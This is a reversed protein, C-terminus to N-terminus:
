DPETVVVVQVGGVVDSLLNYLIAAVVNLITAALALVAGGLGCYKFAANGHLVFSRDDALSRVSKQIDTVFGVRQAVYWTVVGAVMVVILMLAYFCFSMKFVTWTDIRRVLRRDSRSRVVTVKRRRFRREKGIEYSVGPAVAEAVRRAMWDSTGRAAPEAPSGPDPSVSVRRQVPGAPEVPGTVGGAGVATAVPEGVAGNSGASGSAGVDGRGPSRRLGAPRLAVTAGTGPAGGPAWAAGGDGSAYPGSRAGDGVTSDGASAAAGSAPAAESEVGGPVMGPPVAGGGASPAADPRTGTGAETAGTETAESETIAPQTLVAGDTGDGGPAVSSPDWGTASPDRRRGVARETPARRARRTPEPVSSQAGAISGYAAPFPSTMADGDAEVAPDADTM